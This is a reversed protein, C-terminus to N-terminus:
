DKSGYLYSKAWATVAIVCTNCWVGTHTRSAPCPSVAVNTHIYAKHM